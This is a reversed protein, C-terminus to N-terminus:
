HLSVGDKRHLPGSMLAGRGELWVNEHLQETLLHISAQRQELFAQSVFTPLPCTQGTPQLRSIAPNTDM